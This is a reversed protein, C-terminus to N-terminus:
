VDESEMGIIRGTRSPRARDVQPPNSRPADAGAQGGPSRARGLQLFADTLEGIAGELRSVHRSNPDPVCYHTGDMNRPDDNLVSVRGTLTDTRKRILMGCGCRYQRGLKIPNPEVGHERVYAYWRQVTDDDLM